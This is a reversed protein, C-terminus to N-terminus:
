SDDVIIELIILRGKTDKVEKVVNVTFDKSFLIAVGTSNSSGHSFYIDGGWEKKWKEEVLLTSHTEQLFCFGKKLKERIYTFVKSRKSKEGIGNCNYTICEFTAM